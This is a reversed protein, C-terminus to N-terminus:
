QIIDNLINFLGSGGLAFVFAGFLTSVATTWLYRWLSIRYIGSLYSVAKSGVGTLMRGGLLFYVSDVPMNALGFPLSKRKEEFETVDGIYKGVVYEVFAALTMGVWAILGGWVTKYIAGNILTLPDAPIPSFALAVYLLISALPAFPGLSQIFRKVVVQNRAMYILLSIALGFTLLLVLKAALNVKNESTM